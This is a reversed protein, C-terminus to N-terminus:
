RSSVLLSGPTSGTTVITIGVSYLSDFILVGSATPKLTLPTGIASTANYIAIVWASGPDGIIITHIFGPSAKVATTVNSTIITPTYRPEVVLLNNVQDEGSILTGLSVQPMASQNGNADTTNNIGGVYCWGVNAVYVMGPQAFNPNNTPLAINSM